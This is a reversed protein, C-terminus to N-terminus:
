FLLNEIYDAANADKDAYYFTLGNGELEARTMTQVINAICRLNNQKEQYSQDSNSFSYKDLEYENSEDADNSEGDDNLFDILSGPSDNQNEETSDPDNCKAELDLFRRANFHPQQGPQEDDSDNAFAM